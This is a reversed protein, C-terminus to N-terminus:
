ALRLLIGDNKDRRQGGDPSGHDAVYECLGCRSWRGYSRVRQISRVDGHSRLRHNGWAQTTLFGLSELLARSGILLAATVLCGLHTQGLRGLADDAKAVSSRKPFRFELVIVRQTRSIRLSELLHEHFGEVLVSGEASRSRCNSRNSGHRWRARTGPLCVPSRTDRQCIGPIERSRRLSCM